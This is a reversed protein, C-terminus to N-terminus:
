WRTYGEQGAGVFRLRATVLTLEEPGKLLAVEHTLSAPFIVLQGPAPRWSYHSLSYPIRLAATSADQFATALRSEYLRVVGSDARTEGSVPAAVCYIACWATMPFNAAPLAGNARIVTFWARSELRLTRLQAEGLDTVNGILSYVAGILSRALHRVPADPWEFLDDHSVYRLPSRVATADTSARRAFLSGLERNLPEAGPITAVGLPTALIPMVTLSAAASM